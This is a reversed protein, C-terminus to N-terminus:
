HNTPKPKPDDFEDEGLLDMLNEELDQHETLDGQLAEEIEAENYPTPGRPSQEPVVQQTPHQTPPVQQYTQNGM